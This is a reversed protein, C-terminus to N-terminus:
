QDATMADAMAIAALFSKHSARGTGALDFATGHDPSTRVIPLGLTVNVADEFAVTKIPILAQDHYMAVVADYQAWHTPYFLTDAPLPGSVGYGEAQLQAVAPGVIELDERGITGGEGAHPNLGAVAIQPNAIGFRQRLDHAVVRVTDVILAKSLLGPVDRIPVHITVPVARLGGHALMMVPLKTAGGRACLEALFETHGPHKFGAQYLAGKHIPATVLARCAGSLTAAVAAKISDIVVHGSLPTTKGPHDPVIGDVPAIPLATSFASMAGQPGVPAFAIDLGLRAARAALFEAHGFLCFPPLSFEDRRAYLQLAIDPGVGAPEGMSIALPKDM